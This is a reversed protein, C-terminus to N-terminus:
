RGKPLVLRVLTGVGLESEIELRANILDAYRKVIHLGLGTGQINKANEGRFFTEFLHAQDAASIGIGEDRVVLQWHDDTTRLAIWIRGNANSFKYANSLM